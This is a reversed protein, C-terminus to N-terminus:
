IKWFRRRQVNKCATFCTLLDEGWMLFIFSLSSITTCNTSILKTWSQRHSLKNKNNKWSFSRVNKRCHNWRKKFFSFIFFSFIFLNGSLCLQVPITDVITCVVIMKWPPFKTCKEEYMLCMHNLSISTRSESPLRTSRRNVM